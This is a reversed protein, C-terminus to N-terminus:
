TLSVPPAKHPVSLLFAWENIEGGQQEFRRFNYFLMQLANYLGSQERLAVAMEPLQEVTGMTVEGTRQPLNFEGEFPQPGTYEQSYVSNVAMMTIKQAETPSISNM